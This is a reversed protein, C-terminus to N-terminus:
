RTFIRWNVINNFYENSLYSCNSFYISIGYTNNYFRNNYFDIMDSEYIYAGEFNNHISCTSVNINECNFMQLANNLNDNLQTNNINGSTCNFFNVAYNVKNFNLNKLTINSCNIFFLQGYLDSDTININNLNRFFGLGKGNIKNNEISINNLLSNPINIGSGWLNNNKISCNASSIKIADYTDYEKGRKFSITNNVIESDKSYSIEIGIQVNKIFNNQIISNPCSHLYIGRAYNILTNNSIIRTGNNQGATYSRIGYKAPFSRSGICTNNVIEIRNSDRTDITIAGYRGNLVNNRIITYYSTYDIYIAFSSSTLITMNEIIFPDEETGSGLIGYREYDDYSNLSLGDTNDTPYEREYNFIQIFVPAYMFYFIGLIVLFFILGYLSDPVKKTRFKCISIIFGIGTFISILILIPIIIYPEVNLSTGIEIYLYTPEMVPNDNLFIIYWDDEYPIGFNGEDQTYSGDSLLYYDYNSDNLIFKYYNYKNMVMVKIGVKSDDSKLYWEINYIENLSFGHYFYEEYYLMSGYGLTSSHLGSDISRKQFIMLATSILSSFLIILLIVITLDRNKNM